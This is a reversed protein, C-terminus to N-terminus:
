RVPAPEEERALRIFFEELTRTGTQQMIQQPTGVAVMRGRMLFLVRDCLREVEFMNHSTYVITTGHEARLRHLITRVKEAMDPDLSATPEDLFLIEPDNLFAKCLNLRTLQGSSLVGTRRHIVEPIEFWELLTRIKRRPDPVGYLRAFIYLNEWVTLNFPLQVYSSSFNVRQLITRRHRRLDRGLIRISGCTPTILGLLMQITTTKGAGNPGLLGFIEGRHVRFTLAEVARVEAFQKCLHHVEVVTDGDHPGRSETM